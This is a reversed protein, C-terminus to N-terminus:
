EESTAARALQQVFTGLGKSLAPPDAWQWNDIALQHEWSPALPARRVPTPALHDISIPLAFVWGSGCTTSVEYGNSYSLELTFLLPDRSTNHESCPRLGFIYFASRRRPM